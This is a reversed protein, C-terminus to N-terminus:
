FDTKRFFAPDWERRRFKRRQGIYFGAPLQEKLLPMKQRLFDCGAQGVVSGVALARM